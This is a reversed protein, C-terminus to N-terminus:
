VQKLSTNTQTSEHQVRASEHQSRVSEHQNTHSEYQNTNVQTSEHQSTNFWTSVRTNPYIQDNKEEFCMLIIILPKLRMSLM